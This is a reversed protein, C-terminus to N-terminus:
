VWWSCFFVFYLLFFHFHFHFFIPISVCTRLLIQLVLPSMPLKEIHTSFPFSFLKLKIQFRRPWLISSTLHHCHFRSRTDHTGVTYPSISLQWHWSFVSIHVGILPWLFGKFDLCHCTFLVTEVIESFSKNWLYSWCVIIYSRKQFHWRM